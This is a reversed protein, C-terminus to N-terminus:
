VIWSSQGRCVRGGLLIRLCRGICGVGLILGLSRWLRLGVGGNEVGADGDLYVGGVGLEGGGQLVLGSKGSGVANWGPGARPNKAFRSWTSQMFQALAYEQTTSNAPDYTRFVIPIESFHYAGLNPYAQTNTFSANFYYRWTPIGLSATANTWLAAPCQFIFDTFIQSTIDYGNTLGTTNLAYAASLSPILSPYTTNFTTQLFETVNTQNVQFVRGEQANTGGLVPINAINGSLRRAAPNTVLTVNDPVPDFILSKVNIINQITTGNAARVCTLNSSYSGPCGLSATLNDWAPVSSTTPVPRYSYQGSQLIAARFPPTSNKPFSTLLSDISFAGASEGFLTVKDPDGGFAHINRQVWDLAFRQDLFGLNRETLPLEPSAPFGFVNTRYNTTVVVVDEYSAFSSGDYWPHGAHGFQLSGGYIWFLVARGKGREGVSAEGGVAAPAYVNLYLCDESEGAGPPPDDYVSRTFLARALPYRFQQLCAPKWRTANIPKEHKPPPQPPAFRQPPSAAFPIGLFLNIPSLATPLLTTTGLLPGTDITVTPATAHTPTTLLLLSTLLIPTSLSKPSPLFM